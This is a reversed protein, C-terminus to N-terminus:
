FKHYKNSFKLKYIDYLMTINYCVHLVSKLWLNSFIYFIKKAIINTFDVNIKISVLM